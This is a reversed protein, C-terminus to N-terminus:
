MKYRAGLLSLLQAAIQTKPANTFSVEDGERFLVTVENNDSAFGADMRSVDNVVIADCGKRSLKERAHGLVRNTEAAFGVVRFNKKPFNLSALIDRTSVLELTLTERGEKKIKQEAVRAIKYDAVAACLIALDIGELHAHVAEYMEDSTTVRIMRAVGRPAALCVPGSILTVEDGRAVAAEALAYGMKGSSRNGIFRVPDIPEHTPGATILVHM